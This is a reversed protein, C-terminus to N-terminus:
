LTQYKLLQQNKLVLKQLINIKVDKKPDPEKLELKDIMSNTKGSIIPIIQDITRKKMTQDLSPM